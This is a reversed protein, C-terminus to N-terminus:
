QLTAGFAGALAATADGAAAPHTSAHFNGTIGALDAVPYRALPYKARDAALQTQGPNDTGHLTADWTGTADVGGISAAVVGDTVSGAFGTVPGTATGGLYVNWNALTRSGDRFNTIRGELTNADFDATLNAAATFTGIAANDGVQDRTVYKGVAGGVFKATGTLDGYTLTQAPVSGQAENSGGVIYQYMHEESAVNPEQTWIGFYLHETDRMQRVGSTISSPKFTWTGASFSRKGDVPAGVLGTLDLAGNGTKAGTCTGSVTCTFTGFVGDFRGSVRVGSAMTTDTNDTIYQAAETPTPNYSEQNTQSTADSVNLGHIKWFHRTGPAQINTYLYVTQEGSVGVERTRTRPTFGSIAPAGSGTEFNGGPNIKLTSGREYTVTVSTRDTGGDNIAAIYTLARANLEGQEAERRAAEAAQRQAQAQRRAQEAAEQAEQADAADEEAEQLAEDANAADEQADAVDERADAADEEAEIRAAEEEQLLRETEQRAEQEAALDEELQDITTQDGGGSCAAAAILVFGLLAVMPLKTQM